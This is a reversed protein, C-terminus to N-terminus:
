AQAAGKLVVVRKFDREVIAAILVRPDVQAAVVPDAPGVCIFPPDSDREWPPNNAAQLNVTRRYVWVQIQGDEDCSMIAAQCLSDSREVSNGTCTPVYRVEKRVTAAVGGDRGTARPGGGSPAERPRGPRKTEIGGAFKDDDAAFCPPEPCDAAMALADLPGLIAFCALSAVLPSFLRM